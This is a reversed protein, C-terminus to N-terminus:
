VKAFGFYHAKIEIWTADAEFSGLFFLSCNILICM